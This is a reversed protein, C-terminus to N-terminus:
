LIIRNERPQFSGGGTARRYLAEMACHQKYSLPTTLRQEIGEMFGQEWATPKYKTKRVEAILQLAEPRTM